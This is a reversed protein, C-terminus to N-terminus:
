KIPIIIEQLVKTIESLSKDCKTCLWAFHKKFAGHKTLAAKRINEAETGWRHGKLQSRLNHLEHLPTMLDYAKQEEFGQAVLMKEILKLPGVKATAEIKFKKAIRALEQKNFGEILLQDLNLIETAWEDKSATYPYHVKDLVNRDHLQWWAINQKDLEYIQNKISQLPNYENYFRGQFDRAITDESLPAKPAENFQKWHMQEEYPLRSLYILYTSIQDASNVNYTELCWAGRCYIAGHKLTYKDTDAKYKSLVEPRFFAPTLEFPLDSQTYYNALCVPNCSIEKIESNKWDQAIYSCYKKIAGNHSSFFNRQIIQEKSTKIDIFQVGRCYSSVGKVCALTAFIENKYNFEAPIAREWSISNGSRLRTFDFMRMLRLDDVGAYEALVSKKAYIIVGGTKIGLLNDVHIIKIIEELDGHEDLGCWANKESVFHVGILHAIKQNIEYYTTNASLGVFERVFVIQEGQELFDSGANHLPPEIGADSSSTWVGWSSYPNYSWKQLDQIAEKDYDFIPMLVTHIFANPLAAYLMIHEDLSDQILFSQVDGQEIWNDFEISDAPELCLAKIKELNYPNM